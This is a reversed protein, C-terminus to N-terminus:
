INFFTMGLCINSQAKEHTENIKEIIRLLSFHESVDFKGILYKIFLQFFASSYQLSPKHKDTFVQVM